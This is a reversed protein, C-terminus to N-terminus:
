AADEEGDEDNLYAQSSAWHAAYQNFMDFGGAPSFDVDHFYTPFASFQAIQERALQERAIRRRIRKRRQVERPPCLHCFQCAAGTQCGKDHYFACPKCQGSVHANSGESPWTEPGKAGARIKQPGKSSADQRCNNGDPACHDVISRAMAVTSWIDQYQRQDKKGKAVGNFRSTSSTSPLIVHEKVEMKTPGAFDVSLWVPDALAVSDNVDALCSTDSEGDQMSPTYTTSGSANSDIAEIGYNGCKEVM